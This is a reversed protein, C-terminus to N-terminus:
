ALNEQCMPLSMQLEQDDAETQAPIKRAGQRLKKCNCESFTSSMSEKRFNHQNIFIRASNAISFFISVNERQLKQENGTVFTSINHYSGFELCKPVVTQSADITNALNRTFRRM